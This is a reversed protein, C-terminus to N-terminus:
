GMRVWVRRGEELNDISVPEATPLPFSSGNPVDENRGKKLGPDIRGPTYKLDSCAIALEDVANHCAFSDGKIEVRVRGDV